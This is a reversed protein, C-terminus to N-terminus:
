FLPIRRPQKADTSRVDWRIYTVPRSLIDLDDLLAPTTFTLTLHVGAEDFQYITRTPLVEVSIQKM